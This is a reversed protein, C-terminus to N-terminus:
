RTEEGMVQLVLMHILEEPIEELTKGDKEFHKWEIILHKM